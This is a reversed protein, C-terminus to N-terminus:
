AISLVGPWSARADTVSAIEDSLSWRAMVFSM